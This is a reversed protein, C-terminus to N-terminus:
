RLEREEVNWSRIELSAGLADAIQEVTGQELALKEEFSLDEGSCESLWEALDRYAEVESDSVALRVGNYLDAGEAPVLASVWITKAKKTM